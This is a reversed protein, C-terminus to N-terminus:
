SRRRRTMRTVSGTRGTVFAAWAEMLKRRQELLDSRQYAQVVRDGAVHALAAEAVGDPHGADAAWSRFSSRFGHPTADVAMRRLVATLSMDSLPTNKKMGTFVFECQRIAEMKKLLAIADAGLPVRHERGAKMRAAPITWLSAELNFEPWTANRVEGSRVATLILFELARAGIGDAVQLRPWFAPLAQYDMAPHHEPKSITSKAPLIHDLHGKWRAPNEGTRAGRVKAFDLITEIRGRLRSATETKGAWLPEIVKLVLATDVAGVSAAGIIPYAYTKLTNEWQQRHKANRWASRNSELYAEAAERFTMVKAAEAARAAEEAKRHAIPDMGAVVLRRAAAAAERAEKLSVVTFSGLGMDRRWGRKLPSTFRYIWTKAGANTVQLYLGDGDGHLGPEKTAEAKRVTLKGM